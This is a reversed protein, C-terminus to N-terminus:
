RWCRAPPVLHRFVGVTAVLGDHETVVQVDGVRLMRDREGRRRALRVLDLLGVRRAQDLRVALEGVLLERHRRVAVPGLGLGSRRRLLLLLGIGLGVTNGASSLKKPSPLSLEFPVATAGVRKTGNVLSSGTSSLPSSMSSAM